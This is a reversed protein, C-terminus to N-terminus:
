SSVKSRKERRDRKFLRLRRGPRPGAGRIEGLQRRHAGIAPDILDGRLTRLRALAREEDACGVVDTVLIAALKRIESM